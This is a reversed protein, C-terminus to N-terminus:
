ETCIGKGSHVIWEHLATPLATTGDIRIERIAAKGNGVQAGQVDLKCRNQVRRLGANQPAM